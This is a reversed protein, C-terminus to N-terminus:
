GHSRRPGVLCFAAGQPDSAFVIFSGGPVEHPGQMLQGGEKRTRDVAADIDDVNWYYNWAPPPAGPPCPSIAGFAAGQHAIIQYVGMEGMPMAQDKTWGMLDAYFTFTAEPDDTALENWGCHGPRDMAFSTSEGEGAPTMVYFVAGQPDAVMAFRGIGPIDRAPVHVRGGAGTIRQVAADVDDVGFYGLWGPRADTAEPPIALLGAVETDGAVLLRYDMDPMGSDRVKWGVVEGYFAAAADLDSTLLEYWIPAGHFSAM